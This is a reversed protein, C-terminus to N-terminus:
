DTKKLFWSKGDMQKQEDLYLQVRSDLKQTAEEASIDGSFYPALEEAVMGVYIDRHYGVGDGM